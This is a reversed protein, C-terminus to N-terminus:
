RILYYQQGVGFAGELAGKAIYGATSGPAPIGPHTSAKYVIEDKDEDYYSDLTCGTLGGCKSEYESMFREHRDADESDAYLNTEVNDMAGCFKKYHKQYQEYKERDGPRCLAFLKDFSARQSNEKPDFPTFEDLKYVVDQANSIFLNLNPEENEVCNPTIFEGAGELRQNNEEQECINQHAVVSANLFDRLEKVEKGAYNKLINELADRAREYEIRKGEVLSSASPALLSNCTSDDFKCDMIEAFKEKIDEVRDKPSFLQSRFEELKKGSNQFIIENNIKECMSTLLEDNNSFTSDQSSPLTLQGIEAEATTSEQQGSVNQLIEIIRTDLEALKEHCLEQNDNCTFGIKLAAVLKDFFDQDFLQKCKQKDHIASNGNCLSREVDDRISQVASQVSDVDSTNLSKISPFTERMVNLRYLARDKLETSANRSELTIQENKVQSFLAERAVMKNYARRLDEYNLEDGNECSIEFDLLSVHPVLSNCNTESLKVDTNNLDDMLKPIQADLAECLINKNNLNLAATIEGRDKAVSAVSTITAAREMQVVSDPAEVAPEEVTSVTETPLDDPAQVPEDPSPTAANVDTDSDPSNAPAVPSTPTDTLLDDLTFNNWGLDYSSNGLTFQTSAGSTYQLFSPPSDSDFISSEGYPASSDRLPIDLYYSGLRGLNETYTIDPSPLFRAQVRSSPHFGTSEESSGESTNAVVNELSIHMCLLVAFFALSDRLRNLLYQTIKKSDNVVIM